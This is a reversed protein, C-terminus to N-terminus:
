KQLKEKRLLHVTSLTKVGLTPHLPSLLQPVPCDPGVMESASDKLVQTEGKRIAPVEQHKIADPVQLIKSSSLSRPLLM